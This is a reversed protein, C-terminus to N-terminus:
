PMALSKPDVYHQMKAGPHIDPRVPKVEPQGSKDKQKAFFAIRTKVNPFSM